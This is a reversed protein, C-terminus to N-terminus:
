CHSLDLGFGIMVTARNNPEKTSLVTQGSSAMMMEPILTFVNEGTLGCFHWESAYNSAELHLQNIRVSFHLM